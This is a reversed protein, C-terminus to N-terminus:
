AFTGKKFPAFTGNKSFIHWVFVPCIHWKGPLHATNSWPLHALPLHIIADRSRHPYYCWYWFFEALLRRIRTTYGGSGQQIVEKDKNYLRAYVIKQMAIKCGKILLLKWIHSWKKENSKGLSESDWCFKSMRNRSTPAFLRKFPVEFTFLCVFLCVFRSISLMPGSPRHKSFIFCCFYYTLKNFGPEFDHSLSVM